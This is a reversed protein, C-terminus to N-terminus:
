PGIYRANERGAFGADDPHHWLISCFNVTNPVVQIIIEAIDPHM